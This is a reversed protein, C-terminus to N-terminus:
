KIDKAGSRKEQEKGHRLEKSQLGHLGVGNSSQQGKKDGYLIRGEFFCGRPLHKLIM